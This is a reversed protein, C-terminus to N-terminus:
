PNAKFLGGPVLFQLFAYMFFYIIIAAITNFFRQKAKSTKQPDAGSASYQIGGVILSVIAVLGFCLSLLNIAPNIYKGIFDCGSKDCNTNPDAASDTCVGNKCIGSAPACTGDSPSCDVPNNSAAGDADSATSGNDVTAGAGNTTTKTSPDYTYPKVETKPNKAASIIKGRTVSSPAAGNDCTFKTITEGLHLTAPSNGTGSCKVTVETLDVTNPYPNNSSSSTGIGQVTITNKTSSGNCRISKDKEVVVHTGKVSCELAFTVSSASATDAASMGISM